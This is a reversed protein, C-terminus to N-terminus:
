GGLREILVASAGGGGNCIAAIGVRGGSIKLANILTVIIRAGSAGIPHGIAVAGGLINIKEMPIQLLRANVMPVCAYAENIEFLDVDNISLANRTLLKQIAIAPSTTFWEPAQAADAYDVIRAALTTTEQAARESLLVMAAAGDNLNSANAPTITGEAEFSPKLRAMKEYNVKSLDEDHLIPTEGDGVMVPIVENAFLGKNTSQIAKEYSLRAYADQDGRTFGFKRVCMEAANGMHFHHYPDTLGDLLLGDILTTNGMKHGWRQAHNYFPVNSMSEMGGAIVLDAKGLKITAFASSVAKMGSSCVKNVTTADAEDRIGAMRATQRAPSQGLGAQLVNGMYVEDIRNGAIGSRRLAGSIAQTGLQLATLKRFAGGYGGIPTRVAGAIYVQNNKNM